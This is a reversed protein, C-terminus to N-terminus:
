FTGALAVGGGTAGFGLVVTSEGGIAHRLWYMAPLALLPAGHLALLPGFMSDNAFGCPAASVGGKHPECHESVAFAIGAGALVLGGAALVWAAGPIGDDDSVLFPEAASFAVAGLASVGLLADGLGNFREYTEYPVEVDYIGTRLSYRQSYLVWGVTLSATGVAVLGIGAVYEFASRGTYLNTPSAAPHEVTPPPPQTGATPAIQSPAIAPKEARTPAELLSMIPRVDDGPAIVAIDRGGVRVRTSSGDAVLLVVNTGLVQELARSDSDASELRQLWLIRRTRVSADLPDALVQTKGEVIRTARVRGPVDPVCEVQLRYDGVPLAMEFPTTGLELGNARVVCGGGGEVRLIGHPVRAAAADFLPQIEPEDEPGFSPYQRLCREMQAAASDHRKKRALLMASLSCANWLPQVRDRSRRYWDGQEGSLAREAQALAEQGRGLESSGMRLNATEAIKATAAVQEESSAEPAERSRLREFRQVATGTHVADEGAAAEFAQVLKLLRADPAGPVVPVFLWERDAATAHSSTGAVFVLSLLSLLRIMFLSQSSFARLRM